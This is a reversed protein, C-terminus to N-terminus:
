VTPINVVKVSKNGDGDIYFVDVSRHESDFAIVLTGMLLRRVSVPLGDVSFYQLEASATIFVAPPAPQSDAAPMQTTNLVAHGSGSGTFPNVYAAKGTTSLSQEIQLSLYTAPDGDGSQRYEPSYGEMVYENVASGLSHLNADLVSAKARSHLTPVGIAVVACVIVVIVLLELASFGGESDANKRAM